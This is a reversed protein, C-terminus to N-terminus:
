LFFNHFLLLVEYPDFHAHLDNLAEFPFSKLAFPKLSSAFFRSGFL